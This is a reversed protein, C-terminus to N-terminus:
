SSTTANVAQNSLSKGRPSLVYKDIAQAVGDEDNTSMVDASVARAKKGANGMAIGLQLFCVYTHAHMHLSAYTCKCIHAWAYPIPICSVGSDHMRPSFAVEALSDADGMSISLGLLGHFRVLLLLELVQWGLSNSYDARESPHVHGFGVAELMEVDNEGDGLAMVTSPDVNM